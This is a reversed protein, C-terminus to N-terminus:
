PNKRRSRMQRSIDNLMKVHNAQKLIAENQKASPKDGNKLEDVSTITIGKPPKKLRRRKKQETRGEKIIFQNGCKMCRAYFETSTKKDEVMLKSRCKPCDM